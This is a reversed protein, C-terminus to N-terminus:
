DYNRKPKLEAALQQIPIGRLKALEGMLHIREAAKNEMMSLLLKMEEKEPPAISGDELKGYLEKQRRRISAPIASKIKRLLEAEREAPTQNKRKLVLRNVEGAIKNLAQYDLSQIGKFIEEFGITPSPQIQIAQM